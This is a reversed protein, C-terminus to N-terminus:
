FSLNYPFRVRGPIISALVRYRAAARRNLFVPKLFYSHPPPVAGRIRVRSVTCAVDRINAMTERGRALSGGTVILNSAPHAGSGTQASQLLTFDTAGSPTLWREIEADRLLRVAVRYRVRADIVSPRSLNEQM